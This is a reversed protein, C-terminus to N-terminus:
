VYRKNGSHSEQEEARSDFSDFEHNDCADGLVSVLHDTFNGVQILAM